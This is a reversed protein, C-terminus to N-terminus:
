KQALIKNLAARIKKHIKGPKGTGVKAGDLKTVPLIERTSSCLWIEEAAAVEPRSIECERLPIRALKAAKRLADYATIGRLLKADAPPTRAEGGSVVVVNTSAGETLFGNRFLVVEAAGCDEAQRSLLVAALLSTCKIDGRLWRFDEATICAVGEKRARMDPPPMKWVAMFATPVSEGSFSHRRKEEAGRSIHIYLMQRAFPQAQILRMAPARLRAPDYHIRTERLSRRLRLIHRAWCFPRRDYVPVVEYVGDGFLFGRDMVPVRAQALPIFEGNLWCDGSKAM